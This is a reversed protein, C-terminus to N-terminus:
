FPIDEVPFDAGCVSLAPSFRPAIRVHSRLEYIGSRANFALQQCDGAGAQELAQQLQWEDRADPSDIGLGYFEGMCRSLM